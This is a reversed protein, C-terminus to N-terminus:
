KKIPTFVIRRVPRIRRGQQDKEVFRGSCILKTNQSALVVSIRSIINDVGKLEEPTGQTILVACGYLQIQGLITGTLTLIESDTEEGLIKHIIKNEPFVNEFARDGETPVGFELKIENSM